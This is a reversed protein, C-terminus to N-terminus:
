VFIFASEERECLTNVIETSDRVFACGVAGVVFFLASKCKTSRAPLSRCFLVSAAPSRKFSALAILLDSLASPFTM